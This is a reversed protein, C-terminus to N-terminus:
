IIGVGVIKYVLTGSVNGQLDGGHHKLGSMYLLGGGGRGAEVM